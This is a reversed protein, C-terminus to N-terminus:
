RGAMVRAQCTSDWDLAVLFQGPQNDLLLVTGPPCLADIRDIAEGHVQGGHEVVIHTLGTSIWIEYQEEPTGATPGGIGLPRFRASPVVTRGTVLHIGSWLEPAGVVAGPPTKEGVARVATM